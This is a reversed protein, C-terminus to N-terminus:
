NAECFGFRCKPTSGSCQTDDTCSTCESYTPGGDAVASEYFCGCSVDPTFPSTPGVETTRSVKMACVPITNAQAEAIIQAQAEAPSLGSHTLADIFAKVDSAKRSGEAAAVQGSGDVNAIMHLSGWIAYRGERVNIKDFSQGDSDPYYGCSQGKHQYALVKVKDRNKDVYDAALIGFTEDALGLAAAGLVKTAVDGSGGEQTGLWKGVPLGIATAIMIKTGSSDSRTYLSDPNTWPLVQHPQGGFGLAVYAAEASISNESSTLPAAFTMVQVPGLFDKHSSTLTVGSCLAANVDSVGVDVILGGAPPECEVEAGDASWTITKQTLPTKNVVADAGECSGRSTYVITTPTARGGLIKNLNKLIPKSASSGGVYVPNPLDACPAAEARDGLFLALGAAAVPLARRLFPLRTILNREEQGREDRAPRFTSAARTM